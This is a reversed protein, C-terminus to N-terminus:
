LDLTLQDDHVEPEIQEHTPVGVDLRPGPSPARSMPPKNRISSHPRDFNYENLFKVLADRRAEESLYVRVYLWEDKMTRNFREVKGNTKPTQRRTRRHKIGREQCMAKWLKSKYCSGNDTLVSKVVTIGHLAFFALAREFFAVATTAQENEHCEVYAIRSHDDIAVHLYTYGPRKNAKRRSALAAESDRGHARWGGGVPIKGVKKVDVHLMDGPAGHEYRVTERMDEGTPPDMDRLRNIGRRVLERHVTAPAVTHGLLALEGAIRGPGKKTERRLAEILDGLEDSLINPSRLPRSSRDVLGAEGEKCWRAYWVGLRQRSVGAEDAVHAIPRGEEIRECLRRRGEPTLPANGHGM